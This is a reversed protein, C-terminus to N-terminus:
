LYEMQLCVAFYVQQDPIIDKLIHLMLVIKLTLYKELAKGRL